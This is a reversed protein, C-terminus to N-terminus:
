FLADDGDILLDPRCVAALKAADHIFITQGKVHIGSKELTALARSLSERTMGLESAILTKEYPLVARDPTGQHRSLALVYCGVREIVSRLKLNKIQRVMRRFQQALSGLVAQALLPDQAVAARFTAAHIMLLRSAEPARAGMLYPAGTVVAAPIVLQSARVMEMLVENKGSSRGFLQVSGALVVLQFNPMEGQEFIVTGPAVSHQVADHLLTQRRNSDLSRLLPLNEAAFVTGETHKV